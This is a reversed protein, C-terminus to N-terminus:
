LFRTRLAQQIRPDTELDALKCAHEHKKAKWALHAEEPTKFLGLHDYKKTFPNSCYARFRNCKHLNVGVPYEGRHNQRDVLFNNLSHSIFLCTNKSYVKNNPILLDKDLFKGKYNQNEMWFKFKSLYFWDCDVSCNNYTPRNILRKKNYCRGLMHRWCSYFPCVWIHKHKNEIFKSLTVNYDVDKIGVGYITAKM